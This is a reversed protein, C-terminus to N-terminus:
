FQLTKILIDDQIFKIRKVFEEPIQICSFIKKISRVILGITSPSYRVIYDSLTKSFKVNFDYKHSENVLNAISTKGFLKNITYALSEIGLKWHSEQIGVVKAPFTKEILDMEASWPVIESTTQMKYSNKINLYSKKTDPITKKYKFICM